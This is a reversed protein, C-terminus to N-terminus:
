STPVRHIRLESAEAILRILITKRDDSIFEIEVGDEYGNQNTLGWASFVRLGTLSGLSSESPYTPTDNPGKTESCVITDDEPNVRLEFSTGPFDLRIGIPGRLNPDVILRAGRLAQDQKALKCLNLLLNQITM